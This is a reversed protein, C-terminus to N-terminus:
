AREAQRWVEIPMRYSADRDWPIMATQLRGDGAEWSLSGSFQLELPVVGHDIAALYKPAAAGLDFTCPLRLEVATAGRFAGVRHRIRAWPVRGLSRGWESVPGFLEWLRAAEADSYRRREARIQVGVTLELSSLAREGADIALELALVRDGGDVAAAHEIAFELVPPDDGRAGIV